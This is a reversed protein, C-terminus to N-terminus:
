CPRLVIINQSPWIPPVYVNSFLINIFLANHISLHLFTEYKQIKSSSENLQVIDTRIGNFSCSEHSYIGNCLYM